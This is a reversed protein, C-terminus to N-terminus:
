TASRSYRARAACETEWLLLYRALDRELLERNESLVYGCATVASSYSLSNSSSTATIREACHVSARTLIVVGASKAFYGVGSFSARARWDSTSFIMLDHPKKRMFALFMMAQARSEDLAEAPAHRVLAFIEFRERADSALRRADDHRSSEVFGRQRDIRVDKADRMAEAEREARRRALHFFIEGREHRRLFPAVGRM